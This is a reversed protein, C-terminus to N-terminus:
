TAVDDAVEEEALARGLAARARSLHSKVTGEDIGLATAVERTDMELVYRLVATERQRRPLRAIAARVDLADDLGAGTTVDPRAIRGRSRREVLARRWAKRSLNMAVTTVWAALSEIEEGHESRIWARVLAEQVTDEAAAFSGTVFTMAVVLRPYGTQIFHQIEHEGLV